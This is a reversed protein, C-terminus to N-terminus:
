NNIATKETIYKFASIFREDKFLGEHEDSFARTLDQLQEKSIIGAQNKRRLVYWEHLHEELESPITDGFRNALSVKWKEWPPYPGIEKAERHAEFSDRRIGRRRESM